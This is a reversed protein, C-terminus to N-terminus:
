NDALTKLVEREKKETEFTHINLDPRVTTANSKQM